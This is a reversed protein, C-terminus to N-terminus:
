VNYIMEQENDSCEDEDNEADREENIIPAGQEDNDDNDDNDDNEDDHTDPIPINVTDIDIDGFIEKFRERRENENMNAHEATQVFEYYKESADKWYQSVGMKNLEQMAFLQDKDKGAKDLKDVLNQKEKEKQKSLGKSLEIDKNCLYLWSTDYHSLLIHTILDMLFQTCIQISQIILEDEKEELSLFLDNADKCVDSQDNKLENIYHIISDFLKMFIYKSYITSYKENYSSNNNGMISDLNKFHHKIYNFLGKIHINSQLYNNFGIYLDKSQIFIKNHLFLSTDNNDADNLFNLYHKQITDTLGWEKPLKPIHIKKGNQITSFINYIDKLYIHIYNFTLDNDMIFTNIIQKLQETKFIIKKGPNYQKYISNFRTKQKDLIDDSQAIFTCLSHTYTEIALLCNSFTDKYANQIIKTDKINKEKHLINQKILQLINEENLINKQYSEIEIIIDDIKDKEIKIIENRINKENNLILQIIQETKDHNILFVKEIKEKFTQIEHNKKMELYKLYRFYIWNSMHDIMTYYESTYENIEPIIPHYKLQYKSRLTELILYFNEETENFTKLQNNSFLDYKHLPLLYQNYHNENKINKFIDDVNNKGYNHFIKQIIEKSM